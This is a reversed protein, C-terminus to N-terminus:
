RVCLGGREAQFLLRSHREIFMQKAKRWEWKHITVGLPDLCFTWPQSTFLAQAEDEIIRDDYQKVVPDFPWGLRFKTAFKEMLRDHAEQMFRYADPFQQRVGNKVPRIQDGFAFEPDDHHLGQLAVLPSYGYSELAWSVHYAHEAVTYDDEPAGAYRQAKALHHAVVEVGINTVDPEMPYFTNGGYTRMWCKSGTVDTREPIHETIGISKPDRYERGSM